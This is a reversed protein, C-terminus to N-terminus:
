NVQGGAERGGRSRRPLSGAHSSFSVRASVQRNYPRNGWMHAFSNVVFTAHLSWVYRIFAAHVSVFLTEEWVLMPVLIPLVFCLSMM